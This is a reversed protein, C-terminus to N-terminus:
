PTPIRQLDAKVRNVSNSPGAIFFVWCLSLRVDKKLRKGGSNLSVLVSKDPM